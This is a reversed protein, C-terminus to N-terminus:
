EISKKRKKVTKPSGNRAIFSNQIMQTDISFTDVPKYVKGKNNYLKLHHLNKVEIM